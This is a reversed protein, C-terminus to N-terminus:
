AIIERKNYKEMEQVDNKDLVAVIGEILQMAKNEKLFIDNRKKWVKHNSVGDLKNREKCIFTM